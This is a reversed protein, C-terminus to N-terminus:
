TSAAGLACSGSQLVVVFKVFSDGCLDGILILSYIAFDVNTNHSRLRPIRWKGMGECICRWTTGFDWGMVGRELAVFLSPYTDM